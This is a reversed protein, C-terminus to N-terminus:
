RGVCPNNIYKEKKGKEEDIELKKMRQILKREYDKDLTIRRCAELMYPGVNKRIIKRDAYKACRIAAKKSFYFHSHHEYSGKLNKVIWGKNVKRVEFENIRYELM